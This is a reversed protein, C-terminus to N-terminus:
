TQKSTSNLAGAVRDVATPREKGNHIQRLNLPASLCLLPRQTGTTAGWGPDGETM